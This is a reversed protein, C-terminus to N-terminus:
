KEVKRSIEKNPKSFYWDLDPLKTQAFACIKESFKASFPISLFAVALLLLEFTGMVLLLSIRAFRKLKCNM